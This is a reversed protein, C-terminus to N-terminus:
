ADGVGRWVAAYKKRYKDDGELSILQRATNPVAPDGSRDYLTRLGSVIDFRILTCNKEAGCDEFRHALEALLRERLVADDLAYKWLAQLIHRATVFMPDRTAAIVVPLDRLATDHDVSRALNSLMQGAISRVHNNEHALLSVFEGWAADAWAVKQPLDNRLCGQKGLVADLLKTYASTIAPREGSALGAIAAAVPRPLEIAMLM